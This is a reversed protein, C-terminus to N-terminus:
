QLIRFNVNSTLTGGPTTVVVKGTTAGSPVVATVYTDNVVKFSTAAIGNFTVGTTGTLGQGLIQATQGVRGTPQVFTVFPGLSMNVTFVAGANSPGGAGATGYFIGSTHQDLGSTISNIYAKAFGYLQSYQGTLSAKFLTGSNNAGGDATSGYLNGDIGQTLTGEPITGDKSTAGFSYLYTIARATANFKFITGKGYTGGLGTTGYLNGDSALTLAGVPEQGGSNCSFNFTGKVVGATTLATISGCNSPGGRQAAVYLQGNLAQVASATPQDTASSFTYITSLGGSTSFKYVTPFVDPSFGATTGYLNGDSALIPAAEPFGSDAGGTFSYLVTFVGNPSIRYLAGWNFVGGQVTTGYFNGDRALTLGSIPNAGDSGNFSHLVLNSMGTSSQRFVTGQGFDGGQYTTGYLNGDRGQTLIEFSPYQGNAINFAHVFTVTQARTAPAFLMVLSAMVAFLRATRM